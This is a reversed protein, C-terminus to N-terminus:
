SPRYTGGNNYQSGSIKLTYGTTVAIAIAAAGNPTIDVDIIKAGYACNEIDYETTFEHSASDSTLVAAIKLARLRTDLDVSTPLLSIIAQQTSTSGDITYTSSVLTAQSNEYTFNDIVKAITTSGTGDTKKRMITLERQGTGVSPENIPDPVNGTVDFATNGPSSAVYKTGHFTYTSISGSDTVNINNATVAFSVSGSSSAAISIGMSDGGNNGANVVAFDVGVPYYNGTRKTTISHALLTYDNSANAGLDLYLMYAGQTSGAVGMAYEGANVPIEFYYMMNIVPANGHLVTEVDFALDGAGSPKSNGTQYVYGTGSSAAYIKKIQTLATINGSANRTVQYLSFFNLNVQSSNYTAAFFNIRGEEKLNFDISGKPLQYTTSVTAGNVRITNAGVTLLSSTSIANNDFHIGHVFGSSELVTQLYDRSKIYKQFGFTALDTKTYSTIAANTSNNNQNHSDKIRKWGGNYYTMVELKSDTYSINAAGYTTAMNTSRTNTLANQLNVMKYSSIKPSANAGTGVNSGVLYGTNGMAAQTHQDNTFKLPIYSGDRLRYVVQNNNPDATASATKKVVYGGDGSYSNTTESQTSHNLTYLLNTYTKSDISGGWGEDYGEGNPDKNNYYESLEQTYTTAAVEKETSYGVLAYDTLKATINSDVATKGSSGLDLTSTGSVKVGSMTGDVYGAALGILTQSTLSKVTLNNLTLDSISVISSTYSIDAITPSQGVVGFFGVIKPQTTGALNSASPKTVGFDSSSSTPDDNSITLNSIVKNNGDFHGLFPYNDTGIPPLTLGSMDIDNKIKFYKQTINPSNYRGMYQLWALNYLHNRNSIIYPDDISNGSGSEYYSTESGAGVNVKGSGTGFSLDPVYAFWAITSTAFAVTGLGIMGCLMAVKYKQKM